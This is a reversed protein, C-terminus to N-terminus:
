YNEIIVVNFKQIINHITTSTNNSIKEYMNKNIALKSNLKYTTKKRTNKYIKTIILFQMNITKIIYIKDM